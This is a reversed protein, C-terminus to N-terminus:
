QTSCFLCLFKQQLIPQGDLVFLNFQVLWAPGFYDDFISWKLHLVIDYVLQQFIIPWPCFNFVSMPICITYTITPSGTCPYRIYSVNMASNWWRNFKGKLSSIDFNVKTMKALWQYFTSPTFFMHTFIFMVTLYARLPSAKLASASSVQSILASITLLAVWTAILRM